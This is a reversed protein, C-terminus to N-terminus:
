PTYLIIVLGEQDRQSTGRKVLNILGIRAEEVGLSEFWLLSKCFLLVCTNPISFFMRPVLISFPLHTFAVRPSCYSNPFWKHASHFFFSRLLCGFNHNGEGIWQAVCFRIGLWPSFHLFTSLRSPFHVLLKLQTLFHLVHTFLPIPM